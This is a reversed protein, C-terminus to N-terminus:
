FILIFFLFALPLKKQSAAPEILLKLSAAFSPLVFENSTFIVDIVFVLV